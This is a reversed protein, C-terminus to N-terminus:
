FETFIKQATFLRLYDMYYPPRVPLKSFPNLYFLDLISNLIAKGLFMYNRPLYEGM